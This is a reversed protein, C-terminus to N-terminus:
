RGPSLDERCHNTRLAPSKRVGTDIDGVLWPLIVICFTSLTEGEFFKILQDITTVDAPFGKAYVTRAATEKRFADADDPLPKDESRRVKDGEKSVEMLESSERLAGCIVKADKSLRALRNFTMLTKLTVWGDDKRIEERLFKDRPLNFDSFYYEVQRVINKVLEPSTRSVEEKKVEKQEEKQNETETSM